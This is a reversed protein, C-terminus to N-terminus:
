TVLSKRSYHYVTRLVCTINGIKELEQTAGDLPEMALADAHLRRM